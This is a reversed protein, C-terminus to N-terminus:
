EGMSVSKPSVLQYVVEKFLGEGQRVVKLCMLPTVCSCLRMVANITDFREGLSAVQLYMLSDVCPLFEVGAGVTM